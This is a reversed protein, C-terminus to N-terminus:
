SSGSGIKKQTPEPEKKQLHFGFQKELTKETTPVFDITISVKKNIFNLKKLHKTDYDTKQLRLRDSSLKKPQLRLRYKKGPAPASFFIDPAPASSFHSPEAVSIYIIGTHLIKKGKYLRKSTRQNAVM